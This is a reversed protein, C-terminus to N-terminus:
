SRFGFRQEGIQFYCARFLRLESVRYWVGNLSKTNAVFWQEDRGLHILAHKPDLHKDHFSSMQDSKDRGVLTGERQLEISDSLGNSVLHELTAAQGHLNFRYRQSGMLLEDGDHLRAREVSVFTGNTSDLDRLHWEWRDQNQKRLIEVHESSIQPDHDIMIDGSSRGILTRDSRLSITEFSRQDDHYIRLRAAAPRILPRFPHTRTIPSEADAETPSSAGAEKVIPPHHELDQELDQEEDEDSSVISTFRIDVPNRKDSM